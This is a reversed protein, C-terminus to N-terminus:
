AREKAGHRPCHNPDGGDCYNCRNGPAYEDWAKFPEGDARFGLHSPTRNEADRMAIM